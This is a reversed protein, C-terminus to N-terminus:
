AEKAKSYVRQGASAAEKLQDGVEEVAERARKTAHLGTTVADDVVNRVGGILYDRTDEGSRPAFLVGLAAGIGVGVAFGLAASSLQNRSM